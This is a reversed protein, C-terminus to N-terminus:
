HNVEEKEIALNKYHQILHYIDIKWVGDEKQLGLAMSHASTELSVTILVAVKNEKATSEDVKISDYYRYHMATESDYTMAYKFYDDHFTNSDPLQGGNYTIQYLLDPDGISICYMYVLMMDEPTFQNLESLDRDGIFRTFGEQKDSSLQKLYSFKEAQDQAQAPTDTSVAAVPTVATYEDKPMEKSYILLLIIFPLLIIILGSKKM